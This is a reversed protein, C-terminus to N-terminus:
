FLGPRHLFSFDGLDDDAYMDDTAEEGPPMSSVDGLSTSKTPKAGQTPVVGQAQLREMAQAIVREEFAKPDERLQKVAMEQRALNYAAEPTGGAEDWKPRLRGDLGFDQHFAEVVEFYDQHKEAFEAEERAFRENALAQQVKQEATAEMERIKRNQEVIFKIPDEEMKARLEEDELNQAAQKQALEIEALRKELELRAQHEKQYAREADKRRKESIDPEQEQTEPEKAEAEPEPESEQEATDPTSPEEDQAVTNDPQPEAEVPETEQTSEEPETATPEPMVAQVENGDGDNTELFDLTVGDEM